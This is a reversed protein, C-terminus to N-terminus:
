RSWEVVRRGPDGVVRAYWGPFEEGVPHDAPVGPVSMKLGFVAKPKGVPCLQQTTPEDLSKEFREGVANTFRVKSGVLEGKLAQYTFRAREAESSPLVFKRGNVNVGDMAAVVHFSKPVRGLFAVATTGDTRGGGVAPAAREAVPVPDAARRRAHEEMAIRFKYEATPEDFPTVDGEPTFGDGETRSWEVVRRGPDGVVRPYWGPFAEGVPHDAPVGPVSVAVNAIKQSGPQLPGTTEIRHGLTTEFWNGATNTLTVKKDTRKGRLANNAFLKRREGNPLKFNKGNVSVSTANATAYFLEPIRERFNQPGTPAPPDTFPRKAKETAIRFKYVATPEDYPTGDGEPTFGDGETRSWEVVRHGDAGALRAYWGPFEEGVPHDAPAGPVSMKVGFVTTNEGAPWVQQTASVELPGEFWEGVANTFRVKSGIIEGKLPQHAFRALEAKSTPLAFSRGNITVTDKSAAVHFAKPLRGLFAVATTGDTRRGGVVPGASLLAPVPDQGPHGRDDDID